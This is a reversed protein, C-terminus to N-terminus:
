DISVYQERVNIKRTSLTKMFSCQQFQNAPIDVIEKKLKRWAFGVSLNLIRLGFM